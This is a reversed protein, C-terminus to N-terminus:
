EAGGGAGPETKKPGRKPAPEKTPMRVEDVAAAIVEADGKIVGARKLMELKALAKTPDPDDCLVSALGLDRADLLAIAASLKKAAAQRELEAASFTVEVDWNACHEWETRESFRGAPKGDDGVPGEDPYWARFMNTYWDIKHVVAVKGDTKRRCRVARQWLSPTPADPRGVALEAAEEPVEETVAVHTDLNPQNM